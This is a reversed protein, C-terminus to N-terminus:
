SRVFWAPVRMQEQKAAEESERLNNLMYGCFEDAAEFASMKEPIRKSADIADNMLGLVGTASYVHRYKAAYEPQTSLNIGNSLIVTQVIFLFQDEKTM